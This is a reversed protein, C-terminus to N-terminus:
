QVNMECDKKVEELSDLLKNKDYTHKKIKCNRYKSYSIFRCKGTFTFTSFIFFTPLQKMM